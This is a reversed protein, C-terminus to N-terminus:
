RSAARSATRARMGSPERTIVFGDTVSSSVPIASAISAPPEYSEARMLSDISSRAVWSRSIFVISTCGSKESPLTWATVRSPISTM